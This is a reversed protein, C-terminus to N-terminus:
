VSKKSPYRRLSPDNFLKNGLNYCAAGLGVLLVVGLPYLEIPVRRMRTYLSKSPFRKDTDLSM